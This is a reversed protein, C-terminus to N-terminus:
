SPVDVTMRGGLSVEGREVIMLPLETEEGLLVLASLIKAGVRSM